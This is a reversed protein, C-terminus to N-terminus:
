NNTSDAKVAVPIVVSNVRIAANGLLAVKDTPELGSDIIWYEGYRLGAQVM